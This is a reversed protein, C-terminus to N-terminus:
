TAYPFTAREQSSAPALSPHSRGCRPTETPPRHRGPPLNDGTEGPESACPLSRLRDDAVVGTHRLAFIPPVADLITV